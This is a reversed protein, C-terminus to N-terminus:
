GGAGLEDRGPEPLLKPGGGGDVLNTVSLGLLTLGKHEIAPTAAYLLARAAALVPEAAATADPLTRSRTARSFDAFRLRLVVTRGTYGAKAMRGTVREALGALTEDREEATLRRGRAGALSRQTGFSRPPRGPQVPTSDRNQALLHVRPGSGTGLIEVLEEQTLRALQGVTRIEASHLRRATKPGVGWLAEVRLPDLFAREESPAVVLLGDPKAARSAMKAVIKTRAIGVTIPLSTESRVEARLREGIARAEGKTRAHGSLDLFAEEIGMPEVVAATRAFVAFVAKSAAVYASWSPTAVIAQPCLRRAQAGGMGSRVGFRRAEYSAAMVVGGGVIVPRGRLAPDDRQAVSAFFSDVDAHLIVTGRATSM